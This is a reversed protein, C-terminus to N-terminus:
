LEDARECRYAFSSFESSIVAFIALAVSLLYARNFSNIKTAKDYFGKATVSSRLNSGQM